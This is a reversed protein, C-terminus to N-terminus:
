EHQKNGYCCTPESCLIPEAPSRTKSSGEAISMMTLPIERKKISLHFSNLLGSSFCGAKGKVVLLV